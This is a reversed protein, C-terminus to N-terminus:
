LWWYWGSRGTDHLRRITVSLTPIILALGWLGSLTGFFESINESLWVLVYTVFWAYILFLWFEGRSARGSFDAYNAFALRAAHGFTM